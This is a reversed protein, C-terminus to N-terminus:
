YLREITIGTYYRKLIDRYSFGMESRAMGLAGMQCMGVGHGYGRGSLTVSGVGGDAARTVNRLDFYDSQLIRDPDSARGLVWRIRDRKYVLRVSDAVIVLAQTRLGVSARLSDSNDTYVSDIRRYTIERGRLATEYLSVRRALESGTFTENWRYYKSPECMERCSVGALYPRAEKDWVNEIYDTHGGCTSHYYANIFDGDYRAIEGETLTVANSIMDQEVASGNYLQDSVDTKVDYPKKSYQGLHAITYTRAAIAQAKIAETDNDTVPGIEPPVVGKLYDEIYVLNVIVLANEGPYVRMMGRYTQGDVWLTQRKARTSVTVQELADEIVAGSSNLLAVRNGRVRVRVSRPSYYVFSEDDRRCEIAVSGAGGITTETTNDSLLARVFPMRVQAPRMEATPPGGSPACSVATLAALCFVALTSFTTQALNKIM